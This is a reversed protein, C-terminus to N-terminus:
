DEFEITINGMSCEIAIDKDAGNHIKQENAVGSYSNRGVEINGAAVELYYNFDQQSGMLTLAMNGMSCELDASKRIDASGVLEGMGIEANLEDVDIGWFEVQGAGVSVELEKARLNHAFIQGAGVELSIEGANIGNLTVQGAGLELDLSELFKDKPICLTIQREDISGIGVIGLYHNTDVAKLKLVGKEVYCQIRDANDTTVYFNDDDSLATDFIYGGLEIELKEVDSGLTYESVDGRLIEHGHDYFDSLDVSYNWRDKVYIGWPMGWRGWNVQMRGGTVSEVVQSVTDSSRMTGATFALATGLVLMIAAMIACVKMFKKM